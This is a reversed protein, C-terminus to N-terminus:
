LCIRDGCSSRHDDERHLMLYVSCSQSASKLFTLRYRCITLVSIPCLNNQWAILAIEPGDDQLLFDVACLSYLGSFLCASNLLNASAAWLRM